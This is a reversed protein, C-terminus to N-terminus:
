GHHLFEGGTPRHLGVTVPQAEDHRAVDALHAGEELGVKDLGELPRLVAYYLVVGRQRLLVSLSSNDSEQSVQQDDTFDPGM